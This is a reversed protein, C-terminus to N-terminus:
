FSYKELILTIKNEVGKRRAYYRVSDIDIIYNDIAEELINEKENDPVIKSILKDCYIDVLIKELRCDWQRNKTKICASPLRLVIIEDDQKYRYYDDFKPKLMVKGPHLKWLFDFVYDLMDNEVFVFITNHAIQDNVFENLQFLEYIQFSLNDFNKTLCEVIKMVNLSHKYEYIKKNPYCYKGYGLRIITGNDILKKLDYSIQPVTLGYADSMEHVYEQRTFGDKKLLSVPMTRM